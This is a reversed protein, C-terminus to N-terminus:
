KNFEEYVDWEGDVVRITKFGKADEIYVLYATKDLAHIENAGNIKHRPFEEQVLESVRAPIQEALLSRM